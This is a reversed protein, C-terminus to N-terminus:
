CQRSRSCPGAATASRSTLALCLPPVFLAYLANDPRVLYALYAAVAPQRRAGSRQRRPWRLAAYVLVTNALAALMTDM